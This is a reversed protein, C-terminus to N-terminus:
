DGIFRLFVHTDSKCRVVMQRVATLFQLEEENVIEEHTVQQILSDWEELFVQM